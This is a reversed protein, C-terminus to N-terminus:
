QPSGNSYNEKIFQIIEDEDAKLNGGLNKFKFLNRGHENITKESLGQLRMYISFSNMQYIYM